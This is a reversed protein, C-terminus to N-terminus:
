EAMGIVGTLPLAVIMLLGVVDSRPRGIAFMAVAAALLALVIALDPNMPAGPAADLTGPGRPRGSLRRLCPRAQRAQDPPLSPEGPEPRRDAPHTGRRPRRIEGA